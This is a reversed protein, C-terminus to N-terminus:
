DISLYVNGGAGGVIWGTASSGLGFLEVADPTTPVTGWFRGNDVSRRVLNTITIEVWLNQNDVKLEKLKNIYDLTQWAVNVPSYRHHVGDVDVAVIHGTIDVAVHQM